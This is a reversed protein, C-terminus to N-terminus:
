IKLQHMYLINFIEVYKLEQETFEKLTTRLDADKANNATNKAEKEKSTVKKLITKKNEIQM